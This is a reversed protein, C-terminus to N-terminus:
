SGNACDTLGAAKAATDGPTAASALKQTAQKFGNVDGGSAAQQAAKADNLQDRDSRVLTSFNAQQAAPPILGELQSTETTALPITKDFYQAWAPLGSSTVTSPDGPVAVATIQAKFSKCISNARAAFSGSGTSAGSPGATSTTGSGGSSTSGGTPAGGSGCAAASLAVAGTLLLGALRKSGM